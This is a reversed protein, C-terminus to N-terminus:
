EEAELALREPNRRERVIDFAHGLGCRCPTRHGPECEDLNLCECPALDSIECGCEGDGNFLGDFGQDGLSKSLLDRAKMKGGDKRRPQKLEHCGLYAADHILIDSM